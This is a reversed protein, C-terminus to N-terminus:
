LNISLLHAKVPGAKGDVLESTTRSAVKLTMTLQQIITKAAAIAMEMVM